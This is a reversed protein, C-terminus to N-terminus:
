DPAAMLGAFSKGPGLHCLALKNVKADVFNEAPEACRPKNLGVHTCTGSVRAHVERKEFAGPSNSLAKNYM